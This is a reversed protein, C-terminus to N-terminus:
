QALFLIECIGWQQAERCASRAPHIWSDAIIAKCFVYGKVPDLVCFSEIVCIIQIKMVDFTM